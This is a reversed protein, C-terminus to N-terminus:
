TSRCKGRGRWFQEGAQKKDPLAVDPCMVVHAKKNLLIANDKSPAQSSGWKSGPKIVM